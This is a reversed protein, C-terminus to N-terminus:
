NEPSFSFEPGPGSSSFSFSGAGAGEVVEATLTNGLLSFLLSPPSAEPNSELWVSSSTWIISIGMPDDDVKDGGSTSLISGVMKRVYRHAGVGFVGVLAAVGTIKFRM